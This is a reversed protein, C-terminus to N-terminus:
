NKNDIKCNCDENTVSQTEPIDKKVKKKNIKKYGIGPIYIKDIIDEKTNEIEELKEKTQKNKYKKDEKIIKNLKNFSFKKKNQNKTEVKIQDKIQETKDQSSVVVVEEETTKTDKTLIEESSMINEWIFSFESNETFEIPDFEKNIEIEVSDLKSTVQKVSVAGM